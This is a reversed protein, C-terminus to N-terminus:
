GAGACAVLAEALDVKLDEVDELGVHLRVLPGALKPPYRRHRLQSDCPIALSEFGGWSFGLGFLRLDDLFCDVAAKSQSKLVFSVLGNQGTFDRRWVEHGRSGPLGPCIVEAVGPQDNLWAAIELASRGHHELRAALTRLGRLMQYADDPSVSAGLHLAADNLKAGVKAERAMAAGMFVDSHGCVYKTLAQVSVDVGHSLPKFYLGAGWTNDIVTLVGRAQAMAAIAPVDQMELTLSGPAELVILRTQPTILAALDEASLAPDFYRTTVGFRKLTLDCFRRTPYYICDTVLVEDGAKVLALIASTIAALGSSFLHASEAGELDCLAATLSAQPQLGQRGYTVGRTDHLAAANPLLVTSGRQIPPGVTRGVLGDQGAAHVVRTADSQKRNMPGAGGFSQRLGGNPTFSRTM